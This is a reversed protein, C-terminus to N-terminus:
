MDKNLHLFKSIATLYIQNIKIFKLRWISYAMKFKKFVFSSRYDVVRFVGPFIGSEHEARLIGESVVPAMKNAFGM